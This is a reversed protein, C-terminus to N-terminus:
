IKLSRLQNNSIDIGILKTAGLIRLVRLWTGTGCFPDLIIKNKPSVFVRAALTYADQDSISSWDSNEKKILKSEYPFLTPRDNRFICFAKESFQILTQRANTIERIKKFLLHIKGVHENQDKGFPKFEKSLHYFPPSSVIIDIDGLKNYDFEFSNEQYTEIELM